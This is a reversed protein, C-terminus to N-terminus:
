GRTNLNRQYIIKLGELTLYPEYYDISETEAFFLKALGGTAIVKAKPDLERKMRQVIGEIQGIYGYVIGAQMCNVTNKGIIKNPKTLEIRPLKAAHQFLAETSIVVGPAIAGGLYAGKDSVADYTTATGFDVVICPGGYKEYAGVANVIRDAGVERPNDFSIPMGTKVGPGIILPQLQLYRLIVEELCNNLPPVVSSIAVANIAELELDNALFLQRLLLGYEDVTKQRDTSIRWHYVLQEEKYVGLVINTNGIDVLLLM